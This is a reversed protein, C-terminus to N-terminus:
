KVEKTKDTYDRYVSCRRKLVEHLWRQQLYVYGVGAIREIIFDYSDPYKKEIDRLQETTLVYTGFATEGERLKIEHLAFMDRDAYSTALICCFLESFSIYEGERSKDGKWWGPCEIDLRAAGRTVAEDMHKYLKKTISNM